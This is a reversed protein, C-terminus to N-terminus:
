REKKEEEEEEKKFSRGEHAWNKKKKMIKKLMDKIEKQMTWM